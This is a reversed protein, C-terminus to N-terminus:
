NTALQDSTSQVESDLHRRVTRVTAANSAEDEEDLARLFLRARTVLPAGEEEGPSATLVAYGLFVPNCEIDSGRLNFLRSTVRGEAEELLM